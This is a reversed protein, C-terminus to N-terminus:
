KTKSEAVSAKNYEPILKKITKLVKRAESASKKTRGSHNTKFDEFATELQNFLENKM